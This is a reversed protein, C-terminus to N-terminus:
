GPLNKWVFLFVAALLLCLLLFKVQALRADAKPRRKTRGRRSPAGGGLYRHDKPRPLDIAAVNAARLKVEPAPKPKPAKPKRRLNKEMEAMERLLREHQEQLRQVHEDLPNSPRRPM